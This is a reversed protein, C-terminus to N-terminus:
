KHGGLDKKCDRVYLTAGEIREVSCEAGALIAEGDCSRANWISGSIKVEGTEFQTIDKIVLACEGILSEANTKTRGVKLKKAAIPRTFALLAASIILFLLVQWAAPIPLFSLFVMVLAGAAFWITTLALTAAEIVTCIVAVAFWVWPLHQALFQAIAAASFYM